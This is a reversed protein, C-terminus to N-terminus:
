VSSVCPCSVSYDGQTEKRALKKLKKFLKKVIKVDDGFPTDDELEALRKDLHELFREPSIDRSPPTSNAKREAQRVHDLLKQFTKSAGNEIQNIKEKKSNLSQQQTRVVATRENVNRQATNLNSEEKDLKAKEDDYKENVADLIGEVYAVLGDGNPDADLAPPKNDPKVNHKQLAYSQDQYGDVFTDYDKECQERLVNISSQDHAVSRLLSLERKDDDLERKLADIKHEHSRIEVPINTRRPNNSFREREQTLKEVNSRLEAVDRGHVRNAPGGLEKGLAIMEQEAKHM